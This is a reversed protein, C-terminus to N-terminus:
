SETAQEPLQQKREDDYSRGRGRDAYTNGARGLCLGGDAVGLLAQLVCTHM